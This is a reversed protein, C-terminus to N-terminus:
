STTRRARQVNSMQALGHGAPDERRDEGAEDAHPEGCEQPKKRYASVLQETQESVLLAITRGVSSIKSKELADEM